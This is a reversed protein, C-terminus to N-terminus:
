LLEEDTKKKKGSGKAKPEEVKTEEKVPLTEVVVEAVGRRLWRDASGLSNDVDYIEGAKFVLEGSVFTDLKFKLKM